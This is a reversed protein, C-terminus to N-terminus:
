GDSVKTDRSIPAICVDDLGPLNSHGIIEALTLKTEIDLYNSGDTLATVGPPPHVYSLSIPKSRFESSAKVKTLWGGKEKTMHLQLGDLTFKHLM